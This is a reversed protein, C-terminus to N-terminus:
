RRGSRDKLVALVASWSFRVVKHSLRIVPIRGRRAWARVTHPRLRLREALQDVTLLETDRM